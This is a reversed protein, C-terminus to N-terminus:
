DWDWFVEAKRTHFDYVRYGDANHKRREQNAIKDIDGRDRGTAYRSAVV